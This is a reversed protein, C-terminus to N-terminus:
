RHVNNVLVMEDHSIYSNILVWSILVEMKNLKTKALLVIKDHKKKKKKIILEYKKIGTTIACIKIRVATSTIGFPIGALFAFVSISVCWTVAFALTLLREIFSFTTGVKTHKKNM